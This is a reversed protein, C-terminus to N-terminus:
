TSASDAGPRAQSFESKECKPYQLLGGGPPVGSGSQSGEIVKGSDGPPQGGFKLPGPGLTQDHM